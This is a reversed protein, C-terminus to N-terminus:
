LKGICKNCLDRKRAIARKPKWDAWASQLSIPLKGAPVQDDPGMRGCSEVPIGAEILRNSLVQVFFIPPDHITVSAPSTRRSKVKGWFTLENTGMRRTVYFSDVAGDTVSRNFTTLFPVSPRIRVLPSQGIHTPEPYVDMCNDNFNLGAVQACYWSSLQAEPWNPHIMLSEFVRDDIILRNIKTVKSKKVAAVWTQLLDEIDMNKLALLEPDGLSPDGDGHVILMNGVAPDEVLRLETNFTFDPGLTGLAAATTVLKMNSAPIMPEDANIAIMPQGTELDISCLAFKTNKLDAARGMAM